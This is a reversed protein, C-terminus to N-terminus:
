GLTAAELGAVPIGRPGPRRARLMRRVDDLRGAALYSKLLTFEVLDIQARSGCIRERESFVPEIAAIAAEFDQRQFAAFARAFAPLPPGAPYRGARVMEDIECARAEAASADGVVADILAIHWDVFPMGARPFARHAFDHLVRWRALDRQHGALEARWLYSPADLVKIFAPGPYDDAAFAETYLRFGEEIEGRELHALALHWSLHGFLFGGRPYDGLWSRLFAIAAAPEDTEYYFHALAHAAYANCPHEAISREILPRAATHHGLESLAMSYHSNFWWDDGYHPALAALFDVQEQERGARGSTGILGTQNAATSAVMADRPWQAVHRRVAALTADPRGGVLLSFVQIHSADREPLGHVLAQAAAIAAQAGPIDSGIQLARARGAHALAFGPDALIARDLAAAAGPYLTLVLDCGEVYADRASPSSTSLGLGYRDTLMINGRSRPATGQGQVALTIARRPQQCRLVPRSRSIGPRSLLRWDPQFPKAHHQKLNEQYIFLKSTSDSEAPNPEPTLEYEGSSAQILWGKKVAGLAFIKDKRPISRGQRVKEVIEQELVDLDPRPYALTGPIERARPLEYFPHTGQQIVRVIKAGTLAEIAIRARSRSIGTYREIANVSWATLLNQRESGCGMVLYAVIANMGLECVRAFTRRDIAFFNGVSGRTNADSM